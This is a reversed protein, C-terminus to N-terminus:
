GKKLPHVAIFDNVLIPRRQRVAEGWLGTKDLEYCTQPNRIACERMVERSWSNLVFEQRDEYYRYLYGIKSGTLQIAENLAYDLFDQVSDSSTPLISVLSRLRAENRRVEQEARTGRRTVSSWCWASWSATRM